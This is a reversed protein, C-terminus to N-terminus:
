KGLQQEIQDVNEGHGLKGVIQQMVQRQGARQFSQQQPEGDPQGPLVGGPDGVPEIRIGALDAQQQERDHQQPQEGGGRQRLRKAFATQDEGQEVDGNLDPAGGRYQVQQRGIM